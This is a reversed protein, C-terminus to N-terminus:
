ARNELLSQVDDVSRVVHYDIGDAECQQKFAEQHVSLFGSPKKIEIYHVKGRIHAVRDPLGRYSWLGQMLPYNFIGMITLYEKVQNKLDTESQIRM